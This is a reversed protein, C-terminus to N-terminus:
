NLPYLFVMRTGCDLLSAGRVMPLFFDVYGRINEAQVVKRSVPTSALTASGPCKDRIRIKIWGPDRIWFLVLLPPPSYKTQGVMKTAVFIM